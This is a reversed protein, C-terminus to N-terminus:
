HGFNNLLQRACDTCVWKDRPHPPSIHEMQYNIKSAKSECWRKWLIRFTILYNKYLEDIHSEYQTTNWQRSVVFFLIFLYLFRRTHFYLLLFPTTQLATTSIVWQLENGSAIKQTRLNNRLPYIFSPTWAKVAHTPKIMLGDSTCSYLPHWARSWCIERQPSQSLVM